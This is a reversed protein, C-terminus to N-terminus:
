VRERCSARGIKPLIDFSQSISLDKRNGIPAPAGWLFNYGVEPDPLFCDSRNDLKEANSTERLAKLSTNNQEIESLVERYRHQAHLPLLTMISTIVLVITKM